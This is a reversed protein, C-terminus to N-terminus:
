RKWRVRAVATESGVSGVAEGVGRGFRGSVVKESLSLAPGERSSKM